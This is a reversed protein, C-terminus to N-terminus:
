WFSKYIITNNEPHKAQEIGIQYIKNLRLKELETANNEKQVKYNWERNEKEKLTTKIENILKSAQPFCSMHPLINALYPQVADAGYSNQNGMWVSQAQALNEECIKDEYQTYIKISEEMAKNYCNSCDRPIRVLLSLGDKFDGMKAKAKAENIILDCHVNYYDIIKRKGEEMFTKFNKNAANIKSLANNYARTENSGVGTIEFVTSSYITKTDYDAIYFTAEIELTVMPPASHVINKEIVMIDPFIIHNNNVIGSAFGYRAAIQRMKSKLLRKVNEPVTEQNSNEDFVVPTLTLTGLKQQAVVSLSLSFLVISVTLLKKM